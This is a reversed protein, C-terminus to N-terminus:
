TKTYELLYVKPALLSCVTEKWDTFRTRFDSLELRMTHYKDVDIGIGTLIIINKQAIHKMNEIVADFDHCSDLLAFHILTFRSLM